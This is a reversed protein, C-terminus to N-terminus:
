NQFSGDAGGDEKRLKLLSASQLLPSCMTGAYSNGGPDGSPDQLIAKQGPLGLIAPVTQKINSTGPM